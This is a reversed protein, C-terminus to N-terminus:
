DLNPGNRSLHGEENCEWLRKVSDSSDIRRKNNEKRDSPKRGVEMRKPTLTELQTFQTVSVVPEDKALEIAQEWETIQAMFKVELKVTNATEDKKITMVAFLMPFAEKITVKLINLRQLVTPLETPDIANIEVVKGNYRDMFLAGTEEPRVKLANFETILNQLCTASQLTFRATLKKLTQQQM